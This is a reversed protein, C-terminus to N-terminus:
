GARAVIAEPEPCTATFRFRSGCGPQSEFELVGGMHRALSAVRGIGSSHDDGEASELRARLAAQASSPIGGGDDIVEFCLHESSQLRSVRVRVAGGRTNAVSNALLADLARAISDPAGLAVEPVNAGFAVQFALKRRACRARHPAVTREVLERPSFRVDHTGRVAQPLARAVEDVARTSPSPSQQEEDETGALRVLTSALARVERSSFRGLADDSRGQALCLLTRAHRGALAGVARALLALAVLGLLIHGTLSLVREFRPRRATGELRVLGAVSGFADAVAVWTTVRGGETLTFAGRDGVLMEALEPRLDFAELAGTEVASTALVPLAGAISAGQASVAVDRLRADVGLVRLPHELGQITALERLLAAVTGPADELKGSLAQAAGRAVAELRAREVAVHTKESARDASWIWAGLIAAGILAAGLACRTRLSALDM